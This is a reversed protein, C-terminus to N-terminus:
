PGHCLKNIPFDKPKNRNPHSPPTNGSRKTKSWVWLPHGMWCKGPHPKLAVELISAKKIQIDWIKCSYRISVSDGNQKRKLLPIPRSLIVGGRHRRPSTFTKAKAAERCSITLWVILRTVVWAYFKKANIFYYIKLHKLFFLKLFSLNSTM